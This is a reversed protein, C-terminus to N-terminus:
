MYLREGASAGLGPRGVGPHTCHDLAIYRLSTGCRCTRLALTAFGDGVREDGFQGPQQVQVLPGGPGPDDDPVFRQVRAVAFPGGVPLFVEPAAVRQDGDVGCGPLQGPEIGTVAGVDVDLVVDCLGLGEPAVPPGGPVPRDVHGPGLGDAQGRVQEGAEAV